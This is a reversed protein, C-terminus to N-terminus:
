ILSDIAIGLNKFKPTQWSYTQQVDFRFLALFFFFFLTSLTLFSTFSNCVTTYSYPNVKEFGKIISHKKFKEKQTTIQM